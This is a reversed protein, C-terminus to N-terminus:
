KFKRQSFFEAINEISYDLHKNTLGPHLGIWFSDNMVKDTNSMDGVARHSIGQYAPQKLLNGGFVLRTGIRKSNLFKVLTDRIRTGDERISMPFGFWSPNSGPTAEPMVLDDIGQLANKLYDFNRRRSEIFGDLKALQSLGLAAQLDTAKLNYGIHSYTYKHDYGYPLQGLQWEFRKHCTDDVGPACYCDRGWDRFSEVAKMLRPSKGVIMGGEGTTIHHAPYFSVTALDGFSGAMKGAITSGLADCTDEILWMGKEQCFSAIEPANFPNGLTHALVIAKVKPSWAEKIRDITVDLTALDIDVFVPVLGNQMIPNITTPFGAAATIVEDGPVLARKGLTKSTLASVAALNASSGSNVMLGKRMGMYKSLSRQFDDHYHGATLWGELSASMLAVFDEADLTKGSV